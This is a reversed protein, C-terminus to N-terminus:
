FGDFLEFDNGHFPERWNEKVRRPTKGENDEHCELLARSNRNREFNERM